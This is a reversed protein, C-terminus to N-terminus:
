AIEKPMPLIVRFTTGKGIKTVFDLAGGHREMVQTAISLGLGTGTKKTSFFPDFLRKQVEVPIGPGTDQVELIAM